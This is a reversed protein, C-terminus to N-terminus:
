KKGPKEGVYEKWQQDTLRTIAFVPQNTKTNTGGQVVVKFTKQLATQLAQREFKKAERADVYITAPCDKRRLNEAIANILPNRTKRSRGVFAVDEAKLFNITRM